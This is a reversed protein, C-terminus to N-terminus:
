TTETTGTDPVEVGTEKVTVPNGALTLPLKVVGDPVGGYVDLRLTSREAEVALGPEYVSVTTAVAEPTTWVAVAVRMICCAEVVDLEDLATAVVDVCDPSTGAEMGSSSKTMAARTTMTMASAANRIRPRPRFVAGVV